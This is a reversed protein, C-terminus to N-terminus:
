AEEAKVARKIAVMEGSGGCKEGLVGAKKLVDVTEDVVSAEVGRVNEAFKVTKMWAEADARSYRMTSTIHEVAEETNGM